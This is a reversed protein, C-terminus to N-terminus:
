RATKAQALRGAPPAPAAAAPQASTFRTVALLFAFWLPDMKSFSAESLNAVITAVVVALGLVAGREGRQVRLSASRLAALLLACLLAVGVGGGNLLTELYGNHAQIIGLREYLVALREGSWFSNFGAGFLPDDLKALLMPWVDTRSTLTLDRGLIDVVVYRYVDDASDTLWLVGATLLLAVQLATVHRRLAPVRLAILLAAGISGCMLSTASHSQQLLWATLGLLAWAALRPLLAHERANGAPAATPVAAPDRRDLADALLYLVCAMTLLGLSNKHTAVGVYMMEGSWTHYTRGLEPYFRILVLSLPVLVAACRVFVAKAAEAPDAETLVLMVMLLNGADKIWRKLAVLPLDAWLVSLACYGFFLCLWPNDRIFRGFSAGRRALVALAGAMLLLYAAADLPSGEDYAAAASGGAAAVGLWATLPRSAVLLLWLVVLTVAGSVGRRQRQELRLLVGIVALCVFLAVTPPM